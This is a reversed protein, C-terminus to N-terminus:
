DLLRSIYEHYNIRGDAGAAFQVFESMEESSFREGHSTLLEKLKEAEVYGLNEPDLAQFAALLKDESDRPYQNELLVRTMLKEFREYRIAVTSEEDEIETIMDRLEIETPCVGLHRVITPIERVDVVGKQQKDFLAFADAISKKTEYLATEEAQDEEM